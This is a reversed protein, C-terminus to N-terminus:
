VVRKKDKQGSMQEVSRVLQVLVRNVPVSVGYQQGARVVAGNLYDIETKGGALVDQLMSSRNAATNRCVQLVKDLPTAFPIEVGAAGAVRTGEDLVQQVVTVLHPIEPLKGNNIGTIATLPNISINILLKGWLLSDVDKTVTLAVDTGRFLDVVKELHIKSNVDVAGVVTDGVGTHRVHGDALRLAGHATTGALIQDPSICHQIAEINGLGNQLTLVSTHDTVVPLIREVAAATDFAKVLFFVADASGIEAPNSTVRVADTRWRGASDELTIGQERIQTVREANIEFLWVSRGARCLKAAMLIGMAGAGVIVTKV